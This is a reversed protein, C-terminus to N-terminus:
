VGLIKALGGKAYPINHKEAYEQGSLGEYPDSTFENSLPPMVGIPMGGMPLRMRPDGMLQINEQYSRAMRPDVLPNLPRPQNYATGEAISEGPGIMRQLDSMSRIPYNQIDPAIGTERALEAMSQDKMVNGQENMMVNFVKKEGPITQIGTPAAQTTVPATQTVPATTSGGTIGSEGPRYNPDMRMQADKLTPYYSYPGVRTDGAYWGGDAETLQPGSYVNSDARTSAEAGILTRSGDANIRYKNPGDTIIAGAEGGTQTTSQNLM